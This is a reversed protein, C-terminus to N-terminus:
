KPPMVYLAQHIYGDKNSDTFWVIAMIFSNDEFYNVAVWVTFLKKTVNQLIYDRGDLPLMFFKQDNLLDYNKIYTGWEIDSIDIVNCNLNKFGNINHDMIYKFDMVTYVDKAAQTTKEWGEASVTFHFSLFIIVILIRKM